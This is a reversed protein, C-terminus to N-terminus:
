LLISIPIQAWPLQPSTRAIVSDGAVYAGISCRDKPEGFGRLQAEATEAQNRFARQDQAYGATPVATVSAAVICWVARSSTSM